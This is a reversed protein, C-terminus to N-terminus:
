WCMCFTSVHAHNERWLLMWIISSQSLDWCLVMRMNYNENLGTCTLIPFALSILYQPSSANSLIKISLLSNPSTKRNFSIGVNNKFIEWYNSHEWKRVRIGFRTLTYKPGNTFVKPLCNQSACFADLSSSPRSFHNYLYWWALRQKRTSFAAHENLRCNRICM